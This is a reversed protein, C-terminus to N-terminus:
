ALKSKKFLTLFIYILLQFLRVSYKLKIIKRSIDIEDCM